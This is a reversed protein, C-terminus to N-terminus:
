RELLEEYAAAQEVIELAYDSVKGAEIMRNAYAAGGNYKMLVYYTNDSEEFYGKLIAAGVKVNDLPLYLSNVGLEDMLGSFWREQIQMLGVSNGGDGVAQDNFSSEQKIVAMVLTYPVGQQECINYIQQQMERSLMCEAIYVDPETEPQESVTITETKVEPEKQDPKAADTTKPTSAFMRLLGAVSVVVLCLLFYKVDGKKIM